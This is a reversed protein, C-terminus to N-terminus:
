RASAAKAKESERKLRHWTEQYPSYKSNKLHPSLTIHIQGQLATTPILYWTDTPIVYAAIFDVQNSTYPLKNHSVHCQYSRGRQYKTCKVQVRLFHGNHEVAFDYPASDGWPKTISLGHEAARLMFCLEAWEGRQKPHHIDIGQNPM